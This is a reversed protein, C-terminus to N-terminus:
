LTIRNRNREIYFACKFGKAFLHIKADFEETTM